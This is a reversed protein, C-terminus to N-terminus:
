QDPEVGPGSATVAHVTLTTAASAPAAVAVVATAALAFGGVATAPDYGM